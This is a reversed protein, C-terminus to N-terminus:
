QFLFLQMFLTDTVYFYSFVNSLQLFHDSVRRKFHHDPSSVPASAVIKNGVGDKFLQDQYFDIKFFIELFFSYTDSIVSIFIVCGDFITM